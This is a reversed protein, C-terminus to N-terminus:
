TDSVCIETNLLDHFNIESNASSSSKNDDDFLDSRLFEDSLSQLDNMEQEWGAPLLVEPKLYQIDTAGSVLFDGANAVPSMPPEGCIFSITDGGPTCPMGDSQPVVQLTSSIETSSAVPCAISDTNTIAADATITTTTTMTAAALPYKEVSPWLPLSTLEQLANGFSVGAVGCLERWRHIDSASCTGTYIDMATGESYSGNRRRKVYPAPRKRPSKAPDYDHFYERRLIPDSM